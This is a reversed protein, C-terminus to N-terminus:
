YLFLFSLNKRYAVVFDYIKKNHCYVLLCIMIWFFIMDTEEDFFTNPLNLERRRAEMEMEALRKQKNVETTKLETAKEISIQVFKTELKERYLGEKARQM